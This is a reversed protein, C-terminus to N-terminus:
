SESSNRKQDILSRLADMTVTQEANKKSVSRKLSEIAELLVGDGNETLRMRSIKMKTVRGVEEPSFEADFDIPINERYCQKLYGFIRRNLETYFDESSLLNEEFVKKRHNEFLVLLGLVSEENKAVAPAEIRMQTVTPNLSQKELIRYM